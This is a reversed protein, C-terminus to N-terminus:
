KKSNINAFKKGLMCEHRATCITTCYEMRLECGVKEHYNMFFDYEAVCWEISHHAKEGLFYQNDHIHKDLRCLQWEKFEKFQKCSLM